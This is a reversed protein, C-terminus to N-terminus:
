SLMGKGFMWTGATGWYTSIGIYNVAKPAPDDFRLFEDQFLETGQGVRIVGGSWSIWFPQFFHENLPTHLITIVAACQQCTRINSNTNSNGGIAIEYSDPNGKVTSLTVHADKRAKVSFFM